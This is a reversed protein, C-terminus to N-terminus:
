NRSRPARVGASKRPQKIARAFEPGVNSGLLMLLVAKQAHLRNEAQEFVLSRESEIVSETVEDGRHAPLCHMFLAQAGAQEMLAEDVQYAAFVNRRTAAESE